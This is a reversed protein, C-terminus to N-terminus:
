QKVLLWAIAKPNVTNFAVRAGVVEPLIISVDFDPCEFCHLGQKQARAPNAWKRRTTKQL